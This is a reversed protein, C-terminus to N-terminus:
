IKGLQYGFTMESDDGQIFLHVMEKISVCVSDGVWRKCIGHRTLLQLNECRFPKSRPVSLGSMAKQTYSKVMTSSSTSSDELAPVELLEESGVHSGKACAMLSIRENTVQLIQVRRIYSGYMM